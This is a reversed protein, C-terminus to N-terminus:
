CNLSDRNIPKYGFQIISPLISVKSLKLFLNVLVSIYRVLQRNKFFCFVANNNTYLIIEEFSQGGWVTHLRTSKYRQKQYLITFLVRINKIKHFTVMHSEIIPEVNRSFTIFKCITNNFQIFIHTM